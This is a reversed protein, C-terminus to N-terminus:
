EDHHLKFYHLQKVFIANLNNNNNNNGLPFCSIKVINLYKKILEVDLIQHSWDVNKDLIFLNGFSGQKCM